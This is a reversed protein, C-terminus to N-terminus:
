AQSNYTQRIQIERAHARKLRRYTIVTSIGLPIMAGLWALPNATCAGIYGFMQAVVIAAVVRMVLEMIGAATPIISLGLGQLMNRTVFLLALIWYTAGNIMLYIRGYEIVETQDEGVFISILEYGFFIQM